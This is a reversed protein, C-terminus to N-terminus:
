SVLLNVNYVSNFQKLRKRFGFWNCHFCESPCRLLVVKQSECFPVGQGFNSCMTFKKESGQCSFCAQYNLPGVGSIPSTSTTISPFTNSFEKFGLQRCAVRADAIGFIDSCLFNWVGNRCMQLLGATGSQERFVLRIAGEDSCLAQEMEETSSPSITPCSMCQNDGKLQYFSGIPGDLDLSECCNEVSSTTQIFNRCGSTKYCNYIQTGGM